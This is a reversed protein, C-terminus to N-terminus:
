PGGELEAVARRVEAVFSDNAAADADPAFRATECRGLLAALQRAVPEPVSARVLAAPLDALLIGRSLLGTADEIALHLARELHAALAAGDTSRAAEDLAAHARAGASERTTRRREVVRKRARTLLASAGVLAPPAFLLLWLASGPVLGPKAPSYPGLSARPSPLVALPDLEGVPAGDTAASAAPLPAPQTSPTVLVNGLTVRAVQYRKADPDWYPLELVGLDVTGAEQIRVVYGFTRYGNVKGNGAEIHEKKEPDLWDISMRAPVVLNEPLNGTGSVKVNVSVAGGQEVRRPAVEATLTFQGVDGLRYGAPRGESPPTVVRVTLDESRREIEGGRGRRVLRQVHSGTHLDGTRMPFLALRDLLKVRFRTGGALAVVTPEAEVDKLLPVRLFDALPATHVLTVDYIEREYRYFSVTVQEGLVVQKKDLVARLFVDDFPATPLELEKADPPPEDGPWVEEFPNAGFPWPMSPGGPLLFGGQGRPQRPRSGQAVVTVQVPKTGIRKGNWTITPSPLTLAGVRSATLIWTAGIGVKVVNRGRGMTAFTQQSLRPEQASVGAPPAFKPDTPIAAGQDVLAKLELSFPEGVEVVDSSLQLTLDPMAAQQAFAEHPAGDLGGGDVVGVLGVAAAFSLAFVRARRATRASM